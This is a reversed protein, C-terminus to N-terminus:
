IYITARYMTCLSSISHEWCIIYQYQNVVNICICILRMLVIVEVYYSMLETYHDHVACLNSNICGNNMRMPVLGSSCPVPSDCEALHTWHFGTFSTLIPLDSTLFHAKFMVNPLFTPKLGHLTTALFFTCFFGCFCPTQQDSAKLLWSFHRHKRLLPFVRTEEGWAEIGEPRITQDQNPLSPDLVM